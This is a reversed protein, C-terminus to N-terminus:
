KTEEFIEEDTMGTARLKDIAHTWMSLLADITYSNSELSQQLHFIEELAEGFITSSLSPYEAGECAEDHYALLKNMIDPNYHSNYSM